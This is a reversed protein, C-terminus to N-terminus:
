FDYLFHRNKYHRHFSFFSLLNKSFGEKIIYKPKNRIETLLRSLYEGIIGLGLLILGNLFSISIIISAWGPVVVGNKLYM